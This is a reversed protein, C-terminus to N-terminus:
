KGYKKRKGRGTKWVTILKGTEPNISITAYVGIIRQSVGTDDMRIKEINIPNAIADIIDELSVRRSILQETFHNSVEKIAIDNKTVLGVLKKKSYQHLDMVRSFSAVSMRDKAVPLGFEKSLQMYKDTLQNIRLQEVRRTIDDGAAKAMNARDKHKRIKTELRRQMQTAEYATYIKGEFEKKETSVRAMKELEAETYGPVSTKLDVPYVTHRCNWTEFKRDLSEQIQEFEAKTFVRGQYPLHDPACYNHASIEWGDAGILEGNLRSVETAIAKVGDLVNQRMASDLRRSYGSEYDLVRLGSDATERLARRVASSWSVRGTAVDSIALDVLNRYHEGFGVFRTRGSEDLVRFGIANTNSINSFREKTAAAVGRIFNVLVWQEALPPQSLGKVVFAKAYSRYAIRAVNEYVKSMRVTTAGLEREIERLLEATERNGEHLRGLSDFGAIKGGKRIDKVRQGLKRLLWSNLARMGLTAIEALEDLDRLTFM